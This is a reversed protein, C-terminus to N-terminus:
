SPASRGLRWYGYFSVNRKPVGRDNVLHRRVSTALRSEGAVWAYLLGEPLGTDGVAQLARVGPRLDEGDRSLWHVRVGPPVPLSRIDHARAVEVFVETPPPSPDSDLISLIAPLASEDGVLLRGRAHEPPRYMSGLDFIGARDGPRVRRVWSTMPSDGHLAFEIDLEQEAPRLSRITLNRVWPRVSKPMLMVQAMWAENSATPMRVETQGERPFFLRVAQDPGGPVLHRIGPGGLTVATFGPSVPQCRRVELTIMRRERPLSVRPIVAVSGPM